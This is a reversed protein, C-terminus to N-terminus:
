KGTECAKLTARFAEDLNGLEYGLATRSKLPDLFTNAAQLPAFHRLDLGSEKGQLKHSLWVAFMGIRTIWTPLTIVRIHRGEAAALRTLMEAWSLNEQGIPYRQGAQGREVAAVVARGVTQASICATGGKPYFLTKTSRIYKILPTWLPKWGLIPMAGFIYPLELVCTKLGPISTLAEEQEVRSRIYPHREALKWVSWVHDFHAFYSGLVVAHKVGAQVALRFLRAPTKVNARFFKPYAPKKLIARDDMGAAFVLADHGRLLALLDDDSAQEVNQLIVKVTPPFLDAPPAPPLGLSTVEWGKALFEQIAHYGLFGTGGVVFVRKVASM